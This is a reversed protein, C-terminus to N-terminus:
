LNKKVLVVLDDVEKIRDFQDQVVQINFEHEISLMIDIFDISDIEQFSVVIKHELVSEVIKVIKHKVEDM